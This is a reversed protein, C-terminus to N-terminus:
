RARTLWSPRAIHMRGQWVIRSPSVMNAMAVPSDDAWTSRVERPAPATSAVAWATNRATRLAVPSPPM